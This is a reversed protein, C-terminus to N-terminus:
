QQQQQQQQQEYQRYFQDRPNFALFNLFSFSTLELDPDADTLFSEHLLIDNFRQLVSFDNFHGEKNSCALPWM